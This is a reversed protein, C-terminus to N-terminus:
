ATAHLAVKNGESDIIFAAVGWEGMDMRPLLVRGGAEEVRTVVPELEAGASLFVIAGDTSPRYGEGQVIAGTVGDEAPFMAFRRDDAETVDSLRTRLVTNYFAVARELDTVPLEFWAIAHHMLSAETSTDRCSREQHAM